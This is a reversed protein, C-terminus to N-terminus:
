LGKAGPAAEDKRLSLLLERFREKGSSAAGGKIGKGSLDVLKAIRDWSTGGATTDDRSELFEAAEKQTQAINKEKKENYSLYFDDIAQHAEAVTAAKKDESIKDRQSIAADRNSRWEQIVAPEEVPEAPPAYSSNFGSVNTISGGPGVNQNSTDLEPFSSEFGAMEESAGADYSDGGGLLDHEDADEVTTVKRDNPTSFLDADDGLLERERDLFSGGETAEPKVDTQGADFEDLSPFRDAM